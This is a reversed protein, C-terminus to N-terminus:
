YNNKNTRALLNFLSVDCCCHLTHYDIYPFKEYESENGPKRAKDLEHLYLKSDPMCVQM